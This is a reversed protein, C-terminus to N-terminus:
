LVGCSFTAHRLIVHDRHVIKISIVRFRVYEELHFHLEDTYVLNEEFVM